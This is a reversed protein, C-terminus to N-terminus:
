QNVVVREVIKAEKLDAPTACRKGADTEVDVMGMSYCIASAAKAEARKQNDDEIIGVLMYFTLVVMMVIFMPFSFLRDFITNIIEKANKM